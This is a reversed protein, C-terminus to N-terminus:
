NRGPYHEELEWMQAILLAELDELEKRDMELYKIAPPFEARMMEIVRWDDWRALMAAVLALQAGLKRWRSIYDSVTAPEDV